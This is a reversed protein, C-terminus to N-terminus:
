SIWDGDRLVLSVLVAVIGAGCLAAPIYWGKMLCPVGICCLLFPLGLQYAFDLAARQNQHM